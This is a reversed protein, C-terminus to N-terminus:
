IEHLRSSNLSALEKYSEVDSLVADMKDDFTSLTKLEKTRAKGIKMEKTREKEIKLERSKEFISAKTNVYNPVYHSEPVNFRISETIIANETVEKALMLILPLNPNDQISALKQVTILETHSDEINQDFDLLRGNLESTQPPVSSVKQEMFPIKAANSQESVENADPAFNIRPTDEEKGEEYADPESNIRPTEGENDPRDTGEITGFLAANQEARETEPEINFWNDNDKFCDDVEKM